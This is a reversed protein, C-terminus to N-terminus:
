SRSPPQHLPSVHLLTNLLYLFINNANSKFEHQQQKTTTTTKNNNQRRRKSTTTKDDDDDNNNNQIKFKNV